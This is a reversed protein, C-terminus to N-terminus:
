VMKTFPLLLVLSCWNGSSSYGGYLKDYLSYLVIRYTGILVYRM